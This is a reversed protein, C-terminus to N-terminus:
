LGRDWGLEPLPELLRQSTAGSSLSLFALGVGWPAISSVGLVTPLCGSVGAGSQAPHYPGSAESLMTPTPLSAQSCQPDWLVM